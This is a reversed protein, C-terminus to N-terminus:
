IRQWGEAEVKTNLLYTGSPTKRDLTYYNGLRHGCHDVSQPHGCSKQQGLSEPRLETEKTLHYSYNGPM